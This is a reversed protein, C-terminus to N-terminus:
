AASFPLLTKIKQFKNILKKSLKRIVGRSFKEKSPSATKRGSRKKKKSNDGTTISDESVEDACEATNSFDSFTKENM